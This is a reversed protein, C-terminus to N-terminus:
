RVRRRLPLRLGLRPRRPFLRPNERAMRQLWREFVSPRGRIMWRRAALAVVLAGAADLNLDWMTDTLGTGDSMMPRQMETGLAVDVAFEFMEWLAGIGLAFSFVFLAMFNPRLGREAGADGNLIFVLMFGVIGLLLGSVLHLGMDWWWIREYFDRVEGLFLTAFVFLAATIQLVFPVRVPLRERFLLPTLTLSMVAVVILATLWLGSALAAVLELAMVVQIAVVVVRHVREAARESEEGGKLAEPEIGDAM